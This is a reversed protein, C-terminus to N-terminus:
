RMNSGSDERVRRELEGSPLQRKIKEEAEALLHDVFEWEGFSEWGGKGEGRKQRMAKV